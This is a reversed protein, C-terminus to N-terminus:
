KNVGTNNDKVFEVYYKVARRLQSKVSVSLKKFSDRQELKFLYITTPEWTLISDARKMRSAIDSIVADSYNTNRSLWEKFRIIDIMEDGIEVIGIKDKM